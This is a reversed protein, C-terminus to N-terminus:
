NFIDAEPFILKGLMKGYGMLAQITGLDENAQNAKNMVNRIIGEAEQPTQATMVKSVEQFLEFTKENIENNKRVLDIIESIGKTNESIQKLYDRQDIQVQEARRKNETMQDAVEQIQRMQNRLHQNLNAMPDNSM